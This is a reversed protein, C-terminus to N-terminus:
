PTIDVYNIYMKRKSVICKHANVGLFVRMRVSYGILMDSLHPNSIELNIFDGCTHRTSFSYNPIQIEGCNYICCRYWIHSKFEMAVSVKCNIYMSEILHTINRLQFHITNTYEINMSEQRYFFPKGVIKNLFTSRNSNLKSKGYIPKLM